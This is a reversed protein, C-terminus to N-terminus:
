VFLTCTKKPRHGYTTGLIQIQTPPTRGICMMQAHLNILSRLKMTEICTSGVCLDQAPQSVLSELENDRPSPLSHSFCVESPYMSTCNRLLAHQFCEEFNSSAQALAVLAHKWCARCPLGQTMAMSSSSPQGPRSAHPLAREACCDNSGCSRGRVRLCRSPFCCCRRWGGPNSASEGRWLRVRHSAPDADMVFPMKQTVIM